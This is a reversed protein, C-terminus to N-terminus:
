LRRRIRVILLYRQFNQRIARRTTRKKNIGSIDAPSAAVIYGTMTVADKWYFPRLVLPVAAM